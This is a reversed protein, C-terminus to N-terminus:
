REGFNFLRAGRQPHRALSVRGQGWRQGSNPEPRGAQFAGSGGQPGSVAGTFGGQNRNQGAFQGAQNHNEHMARGTREEMLTRKTANAKMTAWYEPHQNLFAAQKPHNIAFSPHNKLFAQAEASDSGQSTQALAASGLLLAMGVYSLRYLM